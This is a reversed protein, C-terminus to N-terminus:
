TLYSYIKRNYTSTDHYFEVFLIMFFSMKRMTKAGCITFNEFYLKKAVAIINKSNIDNINM